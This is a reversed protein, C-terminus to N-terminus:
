IFTISPPWAECLFKRGRGSREPYRPETAPYDQLRRAAQEDVWVDSAATDFGIFHKVQAM